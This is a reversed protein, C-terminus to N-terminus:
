HHCAKEGRLAAEAAHKTAHMGGLQVQEGTPKMSVVECKKTNMDQAVFYEAALAPGMAAALTVIVIAYRALM